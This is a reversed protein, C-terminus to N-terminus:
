LFNDEELDENDEAVPSIDSYERKIGLHDLILDIKSELEATNNELDDFRGELYEKDQWNMNVYPSLINIFKEITKYVEKFM